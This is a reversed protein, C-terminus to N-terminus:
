FKINVGLSFLRAAPLGEYEGSLSHVDPDIGEKNARWIIGLNEGQAFFTVDSLKAKRVINEPLSYSLNIYKLRIHSASITNQTGYTAFLYSYDTAGSEHLGPVDTTNEDGAQRWRGAMVAQFRDSYGDRYSYARTNYGLKYTINFTLSLGKWSFTNTFNGFVNPQTRGDDVLDEVKLSSSESASVIKGDRDYVQAYGENDLGAWKYSWMQDIAKGEVLEQATYTGACYYSADLGYNVYLKELRNRNHSINLTSIWKFESDINVSRVNFDFGTNSIEATNATVTAFGNTPDAQTPAIVDNTYKYYYDFFGSIRNGLVSFDLGTNFNRTEEWSLNKNPANDLSAYDGLGFSSKHKAIIVYPSTSKDIMGTLGYTARLTLNNVWDVNRMWDEKYINWSAGVSWMPKYRNKTDTGFINSQDIRFSGTLNYKDQFSYGGNLFVAFFRKYSQSNSYSAFNSATVATRTGSWNTINKSVNVFSPLTFGTISDYSAFSNGEYCSTSNQIEAGGLLNLYHGGDFSKEYQATARVLHSELKSHSGSYKSKDRGVNWTTQSGDYQVFQNIFQAGTTTEPSYVTQGDSVRTEYQYKVNLNLGFDFKYDLAFQYRGYKDTSGNEVNNMDNIPNYYVGNSLLGIREATDRWEINTSKGSLANLKGDVMLPEFPNASRDYSYIGVPAYGSSQTFRSTTNATFSLRDTIKAKARADISYVTSGVGKYMSDEDEIRGSIYYDLADSGGSLSINYQGVKNNTYLYDEYQRYMTDGYSSLRSKIANAEDTRGATHLKYAYVLESSSLTNDAIFTDFHGKEIAEWQYDVAQAATMKKVYSLDPKASIAYNASAQVKVKGRAAAKRTVVLVGNASKIGYISAAAADRLVTVSEIEEPNIDSLSGEVPFGDVVLLPGSKYSEGTNITSQGRIEFSGDSKLLLGNTSSELKSALDPSAFKSLEESGVKVFSGTAREKSLTQFGTVVVEDLAYTDIDLKVNSAQSAPVEVTKMGTMSFIIVSGRETPLSWRGQEDTITYNKSDRVRVVVGALAEGTESDTVTGSSKSSQAASPLQGLILVAAAFTACIRALRGRFPNKLMYVVKILSHYESGHTLVHYNVM